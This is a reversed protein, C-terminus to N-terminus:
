LCRPYGLLPPQTSLLGFTVSCVQFSGRLLVAPVPSVLEACARAAPTETNSSHWPKCIVNKHACCRAENNSCRKFGHAPGAECDVVESASVFMLFERSALLIYLCTGWYSVLPPGKLASLAETKSCLPVDWLGCGGVWCRSWVNGPNVSAYWKAQLWPNGISVFGVESNLMLHTGISLDVTTNLLRARGQCVYFVM